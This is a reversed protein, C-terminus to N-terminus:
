SQAKRSTVAYVAARYALFLLAAATILAWLALLATNRVIFALIAVVLAVESAALIRQRIM